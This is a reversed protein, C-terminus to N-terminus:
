KELVARVVELDEATDVGPPAVEQAKAVVITMGNELARLQELMEARELSSSPLSTLKLLSKVRYAYIGVHRAYSELPPNNPDQRNFPIAARSFYLAKGELTSVCRVINPNNLENSKLETTLTAIDADPSAALLEVVQTVNKAPMLPEDGQLNVVIDDDLLGLISICEAIRDSGTAHDQRTMLAKGGASEVVAAISEDDTAVYVDNFVSRACNLVHVVMPLGAIELLAKKPLRESGIRSPIIITAKIKNM